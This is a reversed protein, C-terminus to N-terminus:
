VINYTHLTKLYYCLLLFYSFYIEFATHKQAPGTMNQRVLGPATNVEAADVTEVPPAVVSPVLSRFVLASFVVSVVMRGDSSTSVESPLESCVPDSLELEAGAVGDLSVVDAGSPVSSLPVPSVSVCSTPVSAVLGGAAVVSLEVSAGGEGEGDCVDRIDM